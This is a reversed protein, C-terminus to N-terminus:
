KAPLKVGDILTIILKATAKKEIERLSTDYMNIALVASDAVNEVCGFNRSSRSISLWIENEVSRLWM